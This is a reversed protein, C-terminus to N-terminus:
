SHLATGRMGHCEKKKLLIAINPLLIPMAVKSVNLKENPYDSVDTLEVAAEINAKIWLQISKRIIKHLIKELIKTVNSIYCIPRCNNTITKDGGPKCLLLM